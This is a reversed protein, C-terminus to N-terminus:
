EDKLLVDLKEQTLGQKAAYEGLEEMVKLVPNPDSVWMDIMRSLQLKKAGPLRKIKEATDDNVQISITKM